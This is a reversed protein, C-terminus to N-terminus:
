RRDLARSVLHGTVQVVLVCAIILVITVYM